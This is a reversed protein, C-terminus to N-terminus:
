ITDHKTFCKYSTPSTHNIDIHPELMARSLARKAAQLQMNRRPQSGPLGVHLRYPDRSYHQALIQAGSAQKDNM